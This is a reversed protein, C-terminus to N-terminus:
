LKTKRQTVNKPRVRKTPDYVFNKNYQLARLLKLQKIANEKTACRAFVKKTKRNTIRYCNKRYTKRM